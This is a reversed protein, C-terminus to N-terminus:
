DGIARRVILTKSTHKTAPSIRSQKRELLYFSHNRPCVLRRKYRDLERGKSDSPQPPKGPDLLGKALSNLLEHQKWYGWIFEVPNLGAPLPLFEQHIWSDLSAIYDRVLRSRHEPLLDWILLLPGPL